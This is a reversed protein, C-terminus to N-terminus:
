RRPHRRGGRPSSGACTNWTSGNWTSCARRRSTSDEAGRALSPRADCHTADDGYGVLLAPPPLGGGGDVERRAQGRPLPIGEGPVGGGPAVERPPRAALRALGARAEVLREDVL